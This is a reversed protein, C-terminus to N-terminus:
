GSTPCASFGRFVDGYVGIGDQMGSTLFVQPELPLREEVPPLAGSEVFADLYPSQNYEPLAMYTVIQDMPLRNVEGGGLGLDNAEPYPIPAAVSDQATVVTLAGIVMAVLTLLAIVYRMNLKKM